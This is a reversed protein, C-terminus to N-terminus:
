WFRVGVETGEQWMVKCRVNQRTEASAKQVRAVFKDPLERMQELLIRAGAMSMDILRAECLNDGQLSELTARRIAPMRLYNRKEAFFSESGSEYISDAM